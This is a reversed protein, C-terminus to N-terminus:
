TREPPVTTASPMPRDRGTRAPAMSPRVALQGLAVLVGLGWGTNKVLWGTLMLPLLRAPPRRYGAVFLTEAVALAPFALLLLPSVTVALAGSGALVASPVFDVARVHGTRATYRMKWLGYRYMQGFYRRPNIRSEHRVVARPAVAWGCRHSVRHVFEIDEAHVWREDFTEGDILATDVVLNCGSVLLSGSTALDRVTADNAAVAAAFDSAYAAIVGGGVVAAGPEARFAEVLGETWGPEAWADSDLFAVLRSRAAAMGINRGRSINHSGNHLVRVPVRATAAFTAVAVLTTDTSGDDVVIVETPPLRQASLSDLCAGVTRDSNFTLVVVSIPVNL